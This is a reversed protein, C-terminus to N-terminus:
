GNARREKKSQDPRCLKDAIAVPALGRQEIWWSADTVSAVTKLIADLKQMRLKNAWAIQKDTGKLEPLGM